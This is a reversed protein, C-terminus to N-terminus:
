GKETAIGYARALLTMPHVPTRKEKLGDSIQHGAMPCDSSHVVAGSQTVKNSVPKCIKKANAHFEKKLAYTGDHGTCREIVEFSTEPVLKLVDRTKLGINQVRLHCPVHYAVKGLVNLFETKLLGAQHRKWLYEFPDHMAAKVKAVAADEPFLLPLEQKYMLVCSPVPAVLDYGEDVLQALRPINHEKLKAVSELDGLELKPMGCCSEKPVTVVAIGNHEFVAALDRAIDPEHENCYCTAYLAVKGSTGAAAIPALVPKARRAELDQFSKAQFDPLRADRHIGLTSELIKRATSNKNVANVVEAIVPIGALRGLTTPSSLIKDRLSAGDQKFRLAKARLMLHPFDVNWEHPPVYPCKTQYCLDCLYCQDVVDWYAKKPVSHIEGDQTADIADFLVPFSQCLSFCRRCGHCIDYVRELEKLLAAEDYYADTRWAIPHRIPAELSGERRPTAPTESM